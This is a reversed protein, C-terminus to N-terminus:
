KNEYNHVEAVTWGCKKLYERAEKKTMGGSIRAGFDSMRLTDKAIKVKHKKEVIVM